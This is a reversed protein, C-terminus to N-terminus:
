NSLKYDRVIDSLSDVVCALYDVEQQSLNGFGNPKPMDFGIFGLSEKVIPTGKPNINGTRIPFALITRYHHKEARMRLVTQFDRLVETEKVTLNNIDGIHLFPLRQKQNNLIRFVPCKNFKELRNDRDKGYSGRISDINNDRRIKLTVTVNNGHRAKMYGRNLSDCIHELKEVIIEESPVARVIKKSGKRSNILRSKTKDRYDRLQEAIEHLINFSNIERLLRIRFRELITSQIANYCGAFFLLIALVIVETSNAGGFVGKINAWLSFLALSWIIITPIYVYSFQFFTSYKDSIWARPTKFLTIRKYEDFDM